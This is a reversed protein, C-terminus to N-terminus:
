LPEIWKKHSVKEVIEQYLQTAKERFKEVKQSTTLYLM